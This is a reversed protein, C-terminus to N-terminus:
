KELHYYKFYDLMYLKLDLPIDYKQCIKGLLINNVRDKARAKFVDDINAPLAMCLYRSGVYVQYLAEVYSIFHFALTYMFDLLIFALTFLVMILIGLLILQQNFSARMYLIYVLCILFLSITIAIVIGSLGITSIVLLFVGFM